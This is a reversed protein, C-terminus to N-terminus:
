CGSPNTPYVIIGNVITGTKVVGGETLTIKINGSSFDHTTLINGSWISSDDAYPQTMTLTVVKSADISSLVVSLTSGSTPHYPIGKPDGSKNYDLDVLQIYLTNQSGQNHEFQNAYNYANVSSVGSLVRGSLRM